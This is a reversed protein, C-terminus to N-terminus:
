WGIYPGCVGRLTKSWWGCERVSVWAIRELGAQRTVDTFTGNRNNRYLRNSTAAPHGELRSGGGLFIDLWGDNDYDLFAVGCGNTELIYKKSREGDYVIPQTLGAKAAIDTFSAFGSGLTMAVQAMGALLDRRTLSGLRRM